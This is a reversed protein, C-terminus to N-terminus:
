LGEMIRFTKKYMIILNFAMLNMNNIQYYIKEYFSVLKRFLIIKLFHM